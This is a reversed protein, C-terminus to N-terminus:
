KKSQVKYDEDAKHEVDALTKKLTDFDVPKPQTNDVPPSVHHRRNGEHEADGKVDAVILQQLFDIKQNVIDLEARTIPRTAPDLERKVSAVEKILEIGTQILPQVILMIAFLTILPSHKTADSLASAPSTIADSFRKWRSKKPTQEEM